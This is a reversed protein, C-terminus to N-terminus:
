CILQLREYKLEQDLPRSISKIFHSMVQLPKSNKVWGMFHETSSLILARLHVGLKTECSRHFPVARQQLQTRAKDDLSQM